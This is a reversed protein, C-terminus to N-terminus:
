NYDELLMLNKESVYLIVFMQIKYSETVEGEYHIIWANHGALKQDNFIYWKARCAKKM